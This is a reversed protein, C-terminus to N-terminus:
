DYRTMLKETTNCPCIHELNKWTNKGRQEMIKTGVGDGTGLGLQWALARGQRRAIRRWTKVRAAPSLRMAPPM